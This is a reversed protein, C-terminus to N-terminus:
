AGPAADKVREVKAAKTRATSTDVGAGAAQQDIEAATLDGASEVLSERRNRLQIPHPIHHSEQEMPTPDTNKAKESM